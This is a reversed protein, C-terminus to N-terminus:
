RASIQATVQLAFGAEMSRAPTQHVQWVAMGEAYKAGEQNLPLM